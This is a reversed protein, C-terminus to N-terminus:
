KGITAWIHNHGIPHHLLHGGAAVTRLADEFVILILRSRVNQRGLREAVEVAQV